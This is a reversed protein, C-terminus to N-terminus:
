FSISEHDLACVVSPIGNGGDGCLVHFGTFIEYIRHSDGKEDRVEEYLKNQMCGIKLVNNLMGLQM